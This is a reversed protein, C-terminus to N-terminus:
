SNLNSEAKLLVILYQATKLTHVVSFVFIVSVIFTFIFGIDFQQNWVKTKLIDESLCSFLFSISLGTLCLILSEQLRCCLEDLSSHGTKPEQQYKLKIAVKSGFLVVLVTLYAGSAISLFTTITTISDSTLRFNHTFEIYFLVGALVIKLWLM